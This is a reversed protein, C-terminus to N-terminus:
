IRVGLMGPLWAAGRGGRSWSVRLKTETFLLISCSCQLKHVMPCDFQTIYPTWASTCCTNLCSLRTYQQNPTYIASSQVVLSVHM